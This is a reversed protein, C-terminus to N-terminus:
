RQLIKVSSIANIMGAVVGMVCTEFLLLGQGGPTALRHQYIFCLILYGVRRRGHCLPEDLRRSSSCAQLSWHPRDLLSVIIYCKLALMAALHDISSFVFFYKISGVIAVLGYPVGASPNLVFLANSFMYWRVSESTPCPSLSCWRRSSTRAPSQTVRPLFIALPVNVAAPCVDIVTRQIVNAINLETLTDESKIVDKM